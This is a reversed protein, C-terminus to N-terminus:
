LLGPLVGFVPYNEGIPLRIQRGIPLGIQRGIPLRISRGVVALSPSPFRSM